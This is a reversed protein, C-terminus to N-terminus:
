KFDLLQIALTHYVVLYYHNDGSFLLPSIFLYLIYIIERYVEQLKNAKERLWKFDAVRTRLKWKVKQM